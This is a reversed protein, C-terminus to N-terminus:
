SSRSFLLCVLCSDCRPNPKSSSIEQRSPIAAPPLHRSQVAENVQRRVDEVHGGCGTQQQHIMVRANPMAYRMGKEGGALLLAGQSAAVGFCVTGVKPKIVDVERRDGSFLPSSVGDAERPHEDQERRNPSPSWCAGGSARDREEVGDVVVDAVVASCSARRGPPEAGHDRHNRWQRVFIDAKEDVVALTLLQTIVRQAVQANVPKGIFIIRNRFLISSLDLPGGPTMVAPMVPPNGKKAEIIADHAQDATGYTSELLKQLLWRKRISRGKVMLVRASPMILRMTPHCPNSPTSSKPTPARPVFMDGYELREHVLLVHCSYLM